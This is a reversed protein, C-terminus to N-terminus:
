LRKYSPVGVKQFLSSQSEQKRFGLSLESQFCVIVMDAFAPDVFYLEKEGRYLCNINDVSDTHVVSKTGGSSYWMVQLIYVTM